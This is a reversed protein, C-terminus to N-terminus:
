ETNDYISRPRHNNINHAQYTNSQGGINISPLCHHSGRPITADYVRMMRDFVGNRMKVLESRKGIYSATWDRNVIMKVLTPYLPVESDDFIYYNKIATAIVQSKDKEEQHLALLDRYRKPFHDDGASEKLDFMKKMRM